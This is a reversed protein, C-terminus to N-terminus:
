GAGLKIFSVRSINLKTKSIHFTHEGRGWIKHIEWTDSLEREEAWKGKM